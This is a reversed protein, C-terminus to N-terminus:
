GDKLTGKIGICHGKTEAGSNQLVYDFGLLHGETFILSTHSCPAIM